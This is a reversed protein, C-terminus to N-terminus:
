RSSNHVFMPDGFYEYVLLEPVSVPLNTSSRPMYVGCEELLPSADSRGRKCGQDNWIAPYFELDLM